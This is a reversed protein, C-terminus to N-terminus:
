EVIVKDSASRGFTEPHYMEEAKAPPVVYVGPTTARAVYSYPHVGEWLLTTFAEVREDRMNQHQYWTSFWWWYRGRGSSSAATPDEPVSGTVALAPNLPELGAPLPDVLAVHYRRSNAVMSLRVRVEAGAKIHWTGDKDRTVDRNDKVAEYTRQVAFGQESPALWLSKPAYTMGIRYYLRGPGTKGIVLDQTGKLYSMPIELLNKDASRGKFTQEGALGDGLWVRAVFDPTAKEYTEFYKDLALLIFCNEQTNGWRGAVRHDLLGRVLKPIIDNKPQDEILAELMVGDCRRDSYLMVYNGDGYSSTFQATSATESVRNAIFKRIGAAAPDKSLTPLIWGLTELPHKDVPVEALLAKAKAVDPEGLLRRVYLAYARLSRKCSDPYWGPIHSEIERMFDLSRALMDSPVKYGKQRARALAHGVHLSVFPDSPKGRVWYDWGGDDNQQARLRELDREMAAQISAPTAAGPAQFAQLVDRLAAVSLIRSSLQEACEFPYDQLYLFADTLEAVATSTTTVELGGFEPFVDSPAKVPQAIAGEDIQGYTAFAESTAPTYVPLSIEAADAWKGAGAAMQFRATGPEETSVPFRVEVRDNAPVTLARGQGELFKANSARMAVEVQMPADTQNQVVVPLEARDGFNLFRPASPRVMLPLRATLSSEAKGFERGKEGAAALAVVRYRTLNDPVKLPVSAKGAGDTQVTGVFLALPNFNSRVKIPEAEGGEDKARKGAAKKMMRPAEAAPAPPPMAGGSAEQATVGDALNREQDLDQPNALTIFSRLHYDSVAGGRHPYFSGLPDAFQYGSLALISEDVVIVAVDTAKAPTGAATLVSLELTTNGGPELAKVAPTVKVTLARDTPPISLSLGGTAFAPRPPAGKIPEGNSLTRPASGVVDVQVNLNPIYAEKLPVKLTATGQPLAFVERTVLGERRTTLVGQAPSFPSQVLIEATEGPKYSKKDPVLTVQEQEVNRSPPVKGGAVWVTLQSQNRRGKADTVTAEVQYTGGEGSALQVPLPTTTSQVTKLQVDKEITTTKGGTRKWDLRYAKVSVSRGAVPKGDLDTVILQLPLAQGKQVFARESKLGVYVDAPHVLLNATASWAQRNVDMVTAQATVSTPRPPNVSQFDLALTHKGAADTRGEFSAAPYPDDYNTEVEDLWWMRYDWWPTWTGFSFEGWNPPAYSGQSSNVNWSVEANPLGGGAYYTAAVTVTSKEGVFSASQNSTAAVEFEPRRFEQVQFSHSTSGGSTSLSLSTHGLNVTKPLDFLVEFGGLDNAQVTGERIKNGQSDNVTYAISKVGALGVDGTPGGGITRVWGKVHVQEGPRYMQRDDTVYWAMRDPTAHPYWNGGGWLSTDAPLMALDDGQRAVLLNAAAKLPLEAFGSADTTATVNGTSVTVGSLPSGDKLANAWVILRDRDLMADLGIKTVQVWAISYSRRWVDKPQVSPEAIVVLQHQDSPLEVVTEVMEDAEAKIPITKSLVERGPPPPPDQANRQRQQYWERFKDWDEPGVALARLKMEQHNITYFSLKPVELVQFVGGEARFMPDAPQIAFPVTVPKGLTQGFSDPLSADLTVNYTMRGRTRGSIMITDGSVEVVQNPISPAVKVMEEKFKQEDLANNMRIYLQQLPRPQTSSDEVKLPHYTFFSYSQPAATTRPGEASPTGKDLTVQFTTAPPLPQEPMVAVVRGKEASLLAPDAAMESATAPRLPYTATGASLKLSKLVESPSVAQDFSFWILPKLMHPGSQPVQSQLVPAPTGFTWRVAEALKGGTKSTTGAPVEVSYETAMPFRPDPEFLVTQSGVWRWKGKPQPTLKVPAQEAAIEAVSTVEVMPQSFTVSLHPALEVEGEPAKRLVKLPGAAVPDPPPGKQAPPFPQPVTKGTKPPPLSKERMNFTKKDDAQTKLPQLRALLKELAAQALPEAKVVKNQAADQGPPQGASLQFRFGEPLKPAEQAPATVPSTSCGLAILSLVILTRFLRM